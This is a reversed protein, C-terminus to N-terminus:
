GQSKNDEPFTPWLQLELTERLMRQINTAFAIDSWGLPPLCRDADYTYTYTCFLNERFRSNFSNKEFQCGLDVVQLLRDLPWGTSAPRLKLRLKVGDRSLLVTKWLNWDSDTQCHSQRSLGDSLVSYEELAKGRPGGEGERQSREIIYDSKSPGPDWQGCSSPCHVCRQETRARCKLQRRTSGSLQLGCM